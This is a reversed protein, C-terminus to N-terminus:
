MRVVGNGVPRLILSFMALNLPCYSGFIQSSSKKVIIVTLQPDLSLAMCNSCSCRLSEALAQRLL